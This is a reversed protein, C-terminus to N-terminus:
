PPVSKCIGNFDILLAWTKKGGEEQYWKLIVLDHERVIDHLLCDIEITQLKYQSGSHPLFFSLFSHSFVLVCYLLFGFPMLINLLSIGVAFLESLRDGM